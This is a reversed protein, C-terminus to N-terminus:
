GFRSLFLRKPFGVATYFLTHIPNEKIENLEYEPQERRNGVYIMLTRGKLFFYM